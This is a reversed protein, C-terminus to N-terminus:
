GKFSCCWGMDLVPWRGSTAYWEGSGERCSKVKLMVRDGDNGGVETAEKQKEEADKRERGRKRHM